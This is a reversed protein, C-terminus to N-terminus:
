RETKNKHETSCLFVPNQTQITKAHQLTVQKLNCQLPMNKEKIEDTM